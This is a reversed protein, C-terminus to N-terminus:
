LDQTLASNSEQSVQLAQNIVQRSAREEAFVKKTAELKAILAVLLYFFLISLAFVVYPISSSLNIVKGIMSRM